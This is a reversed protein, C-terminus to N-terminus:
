GGQFRTPSAVVAEMAVPWTGGGAFKLLFAIRETLAIAAFLVSAVLKLVAVCLLMINAWRCYM